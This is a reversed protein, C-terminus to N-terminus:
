YWETWYQITGTASVEYYNNNLVMFSSTLWPTVANGSYNHAVVTSPSSSSDTIDYTSFGTAGSVSVTIFMTKGTTNQYVTTLARSGTVVNQTTFGAGAVTSNCVIQTGSASYTCYETDTMTGLTVGSDQTNRQNLYELINGSTFAYSNIPLLILLLALLIRM